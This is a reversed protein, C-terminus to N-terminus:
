QSNATSPTLLRILVAAKGALSHAAGYDQDTMSDRASQLLRTAQDYREADRPSLRDRNIKKLSSTSADILQTTDEQTSHM